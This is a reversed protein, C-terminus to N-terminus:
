LIEVVVVTLNDGPHDAHDDMGRKVLEAAANVGHARVAALIEAPSFARWIGDSALVFSDGTQIPVARTDVKVTDRMGLARTIVNQPIEAIQEPTIAINLNKYDNLITHEQTLAEISQGRVLSVRSDGVHAIFAQGAASIACVAAAGHGRWHTPDREALRYISGNSRELTRAPLELIVRTEAELIAVDGMSDPVRRALVLGVRERLEARDAIPLAEDPRPRPGGPKGPDAAHEAAWWIEALEELASASRVRFSETCTEVALDAAPRGSRSAGMGDAVVALAGTADEVIGFADENYQRRPGEHSMGASRVRVPTILSSNM